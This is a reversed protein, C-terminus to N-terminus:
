WGQFGPRAIIYNAEPQVLVDLPFSHDNFSAMIPAITDWIVLRMITKEVMLKSVSWLFCSLEADSAKQAPFEGSAPSNGACIAWYRPFHKWKIVDDYLACFSTNRSASYRSSSFMTISASIFNSSKNSMSSMVLDPYNWTAKRIALLSGSFGVCVAVWSMSATHRM